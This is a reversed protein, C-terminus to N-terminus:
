KRFIRVRRYPERGYSHSVLNAARVLQHQQSRISASQPALEHDGAGNLVLQIGEQAERMAETFVDIPDTAIHFIDVLCQEMQAVTNSRLVYIPINRREADSIPQPQQRYYNKLTMVVDAQNLDDVIQIPVNLSTAASRLRNQGVGYPYIRVLKRGGEVEGPAGREDVGPEEVVRNRWELAPEAYHRTSGNSSTSREAEWQQKGPRRRQRDRESSFAGGQMQEGYHVAPEVHITGQEDIYRLEPALIRGRLLADVAAAVDHHIIMRQRDQIEILVDFTPPAKRELVSKQTGRRRAEEDSLTVSEIGGVLDSLTPNMLLNDLSNGHATGVLQVGREAITRAAIAELERGIEDIIIAQPMHNEVAEIMVEHQLAPEPVQMRRSRGISPHPIDGDGAIENSTDVIVVRKEEGRVRAAERLLTTKGVGPRGLLLISKDSLVIDKIIEITGYVARGVRCTLGIIRGKRNRIASIRHLTREIGARNDSGFDGVRDITTQLDNATIEEDSLYMEGWTFRAQPLRGLDMIVEILEASQNVQELAARVPSPLIELLLELDDTIQLTAM